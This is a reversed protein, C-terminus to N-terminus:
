PIFNWSEMFDEETELLELSLNNNKLTFNHKDSEFIKNHTLPLFVEDQNLLNQQYNM